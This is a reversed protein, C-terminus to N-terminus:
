PDISIQGTAAVVRVTRWNNGLWLTIAVDDEATTGGYGDFEISTVGGLDVITLEYPVAGLDVEYAQTRDLHRIANGGLEYRKGDFECALITSRARATTQLYELDQKVRRAASELRHYQLSRVFTPAAAAAVIGMIMLVVIVEVFSFAKRLALMPRQLQAPSRSIVLRLYMPRVNTKEPWQVCSSRTMCLYSAWHRHRRAEVTVPEM